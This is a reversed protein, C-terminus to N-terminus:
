NPGAEEVDPRIVLEAFAGDSGNGVWLGIKGGTRETLEQVVLSPEREGNVFVRVEPKHVEIRARFFRTPNPPNDIENEYVGEHDRRLVFWTNDPHSVYQVHHSRSLPNDARFNFPRFYVADYTEDNVGRFAIGVFSHQPVDKGRIMIEITGNEFDVDELWAGGGGEQEDFVVVTEGGREELTVARNVVRWGEGTPIKSLDPRIVELDAEQASVSRPLVLLAIVLPALALSAAIM